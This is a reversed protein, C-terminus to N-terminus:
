IELNNWEDALPYNRFGGHCHIKIFQQPGCGRFRWPNQKKIITNSWMKFNVMSSCKRVTELSDAICTKFRFIEVIKPTGSDNTEYLLLCNVEWINWDMKSWNWTLPRHVTIQLWSVPEMICHVPWRMQFTLGYRKDATLNYKPPSWCPWM